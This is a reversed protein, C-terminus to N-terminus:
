DNTKDNRGDFEENFIAESQAETPKGKKDTQRRIRKERAAQLGLQHGQRMELLIATEHFLRFFKESAKVKFEGLVRRIEPLNLQKPLPTKADLLERNALADQSAVKGKAEMQRAVDGLTVTKAAFDNAEFASPLHEKILECVTQVDEVFPLLQMEREYDRNIESILCDLEADEAAAELVAFANTLDNADLATVYLAILEDHRKNKENQQILNLLENM